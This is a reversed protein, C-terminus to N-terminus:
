KKQNNEDGDDGICSEYDDGDGDDNEDFSHSVTATYGIRWAPENKYFSPRCVPTKQVFIRTNSLRFELKQSKTTKKHDLACESRQQGTHWAARYHESRALFWLYVPLIM